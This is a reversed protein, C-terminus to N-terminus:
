SQLSYESAHLWQLAQLCEHAAELLKLNVSIIQLKHILRLLFVVALLLYYLVPELIDSVKELKQMVDNYCKLM